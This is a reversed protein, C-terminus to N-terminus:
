CRLSTGIVSFSSHNSVGLMPCLLSSEEDKFGRTLGVIESVGDVVRQRSDEHYLGPLRHLELQASLFIILCVKLSVSQPTDGCLSAKLMETSVASVNHTIDELTAWYKEYWEDQELGLALGAVPASASLQLAKQLFHVSRCRTVIASHKSLWPQFFQM